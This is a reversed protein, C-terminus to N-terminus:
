NTYNFKMKCNEAEPFIVLADSARRPYLKDLERRLKGWSYDLARDYWLEALRQRYERHDYHKKIEIDSVTLGRPIALQEWDKIDAIVNVVESIEPELHCAINFWKREGVGGGMAIM